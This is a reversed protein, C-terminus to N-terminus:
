RVPFYGSVACIRWLSCSSRKDYRGSFVGEPSLLYASNFYDNKSKTQSSSVSGFLLWSNTKRSLNIIQNHLSNIDQFFFPAATEPWVILSGHGPLINLSLQEYINLTERQYNEDWKISQDINGQILSVEMGPSNRVTKNVQDLRCIGYIYVGALLLFVVCAIIYEKRSRKHIVEFVTANILIILFSLGSVGAIDAFQLLYTNLYQSYGLNEWPFGTLVFSKGYEFCVWLVPATLYLPIRDRFYVICGAFLAIYISLYCALLLMVVIGTYFSLYGYNIVVFAIWYIIGTYSVIGTIFGLILGQPFTTANKLAFFLPILAIWALLGSGYKPFSLFLFMGSLVALFVTNRTFLSISGSQLDRITKTNNNM